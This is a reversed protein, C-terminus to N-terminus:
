ENLVTSSILHASFDGDIWQVIGIGPEFWFTKGLRHDVAPADFDTSEM